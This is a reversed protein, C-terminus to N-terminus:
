RSTFYLRALHSLFSDWEVSRRLYAPPLSRITRMLADHGQLSRRSGFNVGCATSFAIMKAVPVDAWTTLQSLIQVEPESMGAAEAIERATKARIRGHDRCRALLRCLIPPYRDLKATITLVPM